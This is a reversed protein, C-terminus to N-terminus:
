RTTGLNCEFIALIAGGAGTRRSALGFFLPLARMGDGAAFALSIGSTITLDRTRQMWTEGTMADTTSGGLYDRARVRFEARTTPSLAHAFTAGVAVDSLLRRPNGDHSWAFLGGSEIALGLELPGRRLHGGAVPTLLRVDDGWLALARAGVYADWRREHWTLRYDGFHHFAAAAPNGYEPAESRALVIDHRYDGCGRGWGFMLSRADLDLGLEKQPRPVMTYHVDFLSIAPTDACPDAAAETAAALGLPGFLGFLGFLVVARSTQSAM